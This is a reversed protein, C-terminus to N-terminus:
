HISSKAPPAPGLFEYSFAGLLAGRAVEHCKTCENRARLAGLALVRCGHQAYCIQEGKALSELAATEFANLERTPIDQIEDMKPLKKNTVYVMPHGFKRLSVLQLSQLEFNTEQVPKFESSFRHPVFGAVHDRDVVWGADEPDVFDRSGGVHLERLQLEIREAETRTTHYPRAHPPVARLPEWQNLDVYKESAGPLSLAPRRNNEFAYDGVASIRTVGFGPASVFQEVTSAHITELAWVRRSWRSPREDPADLVTWASSGLPPPGFKSEPDAGSQSPRKSVSKTEYDLRGAVSVLPYTQRFEDLHKVYSVSMWAGGGMALVLVVIGIASVELFKPTRRVCVLCVLFLGLATSGVPFLFAGMGALWLVAFLCAISAVAGAGYHRIILSSLSVCGVVLVSVLFSVVAM